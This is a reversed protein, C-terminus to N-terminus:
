FDYVGGIRRSSSRGGKDAAEATGLLRRIKISAERLARDLEAVSKGLLRDSISKDSRLILSKCAM